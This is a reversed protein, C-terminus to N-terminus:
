RFNLFSKDISEGKSIKKNAKKGILREFYKPELGYAPRIRRINNKLSLDNTLLNAIEREFSAGKNRSNTM